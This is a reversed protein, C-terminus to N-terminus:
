RSPALGEASPPKPPDHLTGWGARPSYSLRNSRLVSLASTAPEIGALGVLTTEKSSSPFCLSPAPAQRQYGEMVVDLTERIYGYLTQVAQRLYGKRVDQADVLVREFFFQNLLRRVAEPARRYMEFCDAVLDLALNITTEVEDVRRESATILREAEAM